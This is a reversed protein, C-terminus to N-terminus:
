TQGLPDAVPRLSRAERWRGTFWNKLLVLGFLFITFIAWALVCEVLSLRRHLPMSIVGYVMEVHIWYVFLSSRGFEEMPSWRKVSGLWAHREGWMWVLPILTMLIGIRLFYFTPSSTWFNSSEYIRPLYSTAYGGVVLAAGCIGLGAMLRSQLETARRGELLVGVFGGAITFGAWPFLTFTTLSPAPRFYWELPDPLPTLWSTTRIIPTVMGIAATVIAFAVLRWRSTRAFQWIAAAAIMSPGMINLIDVKLLGRLTAGGGLVYAQLRFLFALGFIELGRRRVAAAAASDTGLRRRKSEAALVIAIGALFLFLPAGFGGLIIANRFGHGSRDGARTWADIVHAEIMILVAIGRLWDLYSRRDSQAAM